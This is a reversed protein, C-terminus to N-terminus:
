SIARLAPADLQGVQAETRERKVAAEYAQDFDRRLYGKTVDEDCIRRWGVARVADLIATEGNRELEAMADAGYDRGHRRVLKLTREWADGAPMAAGAQETVIDRLEAPTPAWKSRRVHISAAQMVAAAPLDSLAWAFAQPSMATFTERLYVSKLLGVLEMAEIENM